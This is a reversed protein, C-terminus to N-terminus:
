RQWPWQNGVRGRPDETDQINLWSDEENSETYGVLSRVQVLRREGEKVAMQISLSDTEMSDRRFKTTVEQLAELKYQKDEILNVAKLFHRYQHLVKQKHVFERLSPLADPLAKGGRKRPGRALFQGSRELIIKRSTSSMLVLCLHNHFLHAAFVFQSPNTHCLRSLRSTTNETLM